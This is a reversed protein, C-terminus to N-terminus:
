KVERVPRQQQEKTEFFTEQVERRIRVLWEEAHAARDRFYNAQAEFERAREEAARLESSLRHALDMARNCDAKALHRRRRHDSDGIGLRRATSSPAPRRQTDTRSKTAAHGRGRARRPYRTSSRRAPQLSICPEVFELGEIPHLRIVQYGVWEVAIPRDARPFVLGVGAIERYFRIMGGKVGEATWTDPHQDM